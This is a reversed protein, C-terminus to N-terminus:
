AVRRANTDAWARLDDKHYRVIRQSIKTFPPGGGRNNNKAMKALTHPSLPCGVRSLYEAAKKRSMWWGQGQAEDSMRNVGKDTPYKTACLGKYCFPFSNDKLAPTSKDRLKGNHAVSVM